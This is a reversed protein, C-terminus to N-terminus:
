QEIKEIRINKINKKREYVSKLHKAWPITYSTVNQGNDDVIYNGNQDELIYIGEINKRGRSLYFYEKYTANKKM